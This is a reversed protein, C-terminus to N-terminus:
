STQIARGESQRIFDRARQGIVDSRRAVTESWNTVRFAAIPVAGVQCRRPGAFKGDIDSQSATMGAETSADSVRLFIRWSLLNWIM